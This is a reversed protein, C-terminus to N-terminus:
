CPTRARALRLLSDKLRDPGSFRRAPDNPAPDQPYTRRSHVPEPAIDGPVFRLRRVVPRGLYANIRECLARSEHQLFLAAAPEAKLTLVGGSASEGLKLPRAIRSIEAGAIERWRLVLGSELFGAREFGARGLQTTDLGIAGARNRRLPPEPSSPKEPRTM